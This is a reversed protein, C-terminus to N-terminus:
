PLRQKAIPNQLLAGDIVQIASRLLCCHVLGHM